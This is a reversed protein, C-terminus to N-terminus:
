RPIEPSGCLGLVSKAANSVSSSMGSVESPHFASDVKGGGPNSGPFVIQDDKEQNYLWSGISNLPTARKMDREVTVNYIFFSKSIVLKDRTLFLFFFFFGDSAESFM